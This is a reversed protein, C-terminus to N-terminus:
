IGSTNSAMGTIMPRVIRPGFPIFGYTTEGASAADGIIVAHPERANLVVVLAGSKQENASLVSLEGPNRAIPKVDMTLDAAIPIDDFAEGVILASVFGASQLVVSVSM